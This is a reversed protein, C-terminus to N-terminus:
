KMIISANGTNCDMQVKANTFERQFVGSGPATEACVGRPTGFDTHLQSPFPYGGGADALPQGCGQWGHGFYAYDGRILLFNALARGFAGEDPQAPVCGAYPPPKHTYDAVTCCSSPSACPQAEHIWWNQAGKDACGFSGDIGYFDAAGKCTCGFASCNTFPHKPTKPNTAGPAMYVMAEHQVLADEQCYAELDAKCTTAPTTRM